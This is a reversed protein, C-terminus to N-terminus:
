ADQYPLHGPLLWPLSTMEFPPKKFDIERLGAPVEACSMFSRWLLGSCYNEMMLLIAEKTSQLTDPRFGTRLWASHKM